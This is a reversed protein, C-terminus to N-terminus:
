IEVCVQGDAAALRLITQVVDLDWERSIADLSLSMLEPYARSYSL